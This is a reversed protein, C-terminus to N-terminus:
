EVFAPGQQELDLAFQLTGGAQCNRAIPQEHHVGVPVLNQAIVKLPPWESPKSGAPGPWTLKVERRVNSNTAGAFEVNRVGHVVAHLHEIRLALEQTLDAADAVSGAMEAARLPCGHIAEAVEVHNIGEEAVHLKKVALPM